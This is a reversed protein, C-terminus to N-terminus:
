ENHIRAMLDFVPRTGTIAGDADLEIWNFAEWEAPNGDLAFPTVALVRPDDFWPTWGTEPLDPYRGKNGRYALETYLAVEEATHQDHRWGTETIMVTFPKTVGLRALKYLEWGYSNVGRNYLNQVPPLANPNAAGNLYDVAYTQEWPPTMSYAHSSWVDVVRPFNPDASYMGDLFSEGDLYVMGNEFPQGNTNPAYYDLAGNLIRTNPRAAKIANGTDVLFRVYAAPDPVGGWEEGHNPENGVIVYLESSWQLARIFDAYATAVTTYSGDTDREPATWWNNERDFTTALRIIPTLEYEACLDLFTQWRSPDLDDLRIVETVYDGVQSAHEIHSRWQPLDWVNRGDDLLLHVGMKSVPSAPPNLAFIALSALLALVVVGGIMWWGRRKNERHFDRMVRDIDHPSDDSDLDDIDDPLNNM